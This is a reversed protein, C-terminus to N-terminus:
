LMKTGEGAGGSARTEHVVMTKAPACRLMTIEGVSSGEGKGVGKPKKM